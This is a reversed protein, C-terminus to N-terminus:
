FFNNFLTSWFDSVFDFGRGGDFHCPLKYLMLDFSAARKAYSDLGRILDKEYPFGDVSFCNTMKLVVKLKDIDAFTKDEILYKIKEVDFHLIGRMIGNGYGVHLIPNLGLNQESCNIISNTKDLFFHRIM